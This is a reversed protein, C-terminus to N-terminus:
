YHQICCIQKWEYANPKHFSDRAAAKNGFVSSFIQILAKTRNCYYFIFINTKTLKWKTHV